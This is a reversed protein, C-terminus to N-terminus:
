MRSLHVLDSRLIVYNDADPESYVESIVLLITEIAIESHDQIYVNVQTCRWV